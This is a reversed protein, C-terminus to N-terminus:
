NLKEQARKVVLPLDVQEGDIREANLHVARDDLGARRAAPPRRREGTPGRGIEALIENERGFASHGVVAVLHLNPNWELAQSILGGIWLAPVDVDHTLDLM